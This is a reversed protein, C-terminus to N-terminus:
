YLEDEAEIERDRSHGFPDNSTDSLRSKCTKIRSDSLAGDLDIFEQMCDATYRKSGRCLEIRNTSFGGDWSKFTNLCAIDARTLNGCSRIRNSSLAGDFEVYMLLCKAEAVSAQRCIQSRHPSTGGDMKRWADMCLEYGSARKQPSQTTEAFSLNMLCLGLILFAVLKKM